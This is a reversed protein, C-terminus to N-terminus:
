CEPTEAETVSDFSYDQVELEQDVFEGEGKEFKLRAEDRSEAEVYYRQWGEVSTANVTILYKAM